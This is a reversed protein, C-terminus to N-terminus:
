LGDLNNNIIREVSDAMDLAILELEEDSLELYNGYRETLLDSIEEARPTTPGITIFVKKGKKGKDTLGTQRWTQGSFTLDVYKNQKGDLKRFGAYSLNKKDKILKKIKADTAKTGKGLFFFAPIERTSYDGLQSGSKDKGTEQVRDQVLSKATVQQELLLIPIEDDLQDATRRLAEITEGLSAM